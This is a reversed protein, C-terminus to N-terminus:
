AYAVTLSTVGSYTISIVGDVALTSPFPGIAVEAGATVVVPIDPDAQSYQTNGPTVVTVTISSGSGNKVRLVGYPTYGITDGGGAAAAYTIATGSLKPQQNALLAM